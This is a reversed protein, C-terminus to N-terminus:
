GAFARPDPLLDNITPQAPQFPGYLQRWNELPLSQAPKNFTHSGDLSSSFVDHFFEEYCGIEKPIDPGSYVEVGPLARGEYSILGIFSAATSGARRISLFDGQPSPTRLTRQLEPSVGTDTALRGLQESLLCVRVIEGAQALVRHTRVLGETHNHAAINFHKPMDPLACLRAVTAGKNAAHRLSNTYPIYDEPTEVPKPMTQMAAEYVHRDTPYVGPFLQARLVEDGQELSAFQRALVELGVVEAHEYTRM